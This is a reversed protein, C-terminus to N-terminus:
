GVLSSTAVVAVLILAAAAWWREGALWALPRRGVRAGPRQRTRGVLRLAAAVDDDPAREAGDALWVALVRDLELDTTMGSAGDHDAAARRRRDGGADGPTRRPAAVQGHGGLHRARRRDRRGVPGPLLPPGPRGASRHPARRVRARARRAARGT